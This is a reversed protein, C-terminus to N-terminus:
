KQDVGKNSNSSFLGIRSALLVAVVFVGAAVFLAFKSNIRSVMIAFFSFIASIMYLILVTKKHSYGHELLRHHLHKKDAEMISQGNIFRRLIAFTTDFIPLGLIIIPVVFSITAVSKMVGEISIISLIFGLFLAGTDGMFIKAPNFNYPLFGLTAGAILSALTAIGFHGYLAAVIIFSLSSIFSVGAALGDLGDILNLTNTIGVIWFFTLPISLWGLYIISGTSSFPNTLFEIKVGFAIVISAAILQYILKEKATTGKIDDKIGALFMVTAGVIVAKMETSLPVFLILGIIVSIYLSVGGLLPIPKKHMRRNDKPIDLAGLKPAVKIMVPTLLLSIIFSTFFAIITINM